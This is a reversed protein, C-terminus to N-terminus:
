MTNTTIPLRVPLIPTSGMRDTLHDMVMPVIIFSSPSPTPSQSPTLFHLCKRLMVEITICFYVYLIPTCGDEANADGYTSHLAQKCTGVGDGDGDLKIITGISVSRRVSLIRTSCLTFKVTIPVPDSNFKFTSPVASVAHSSTRISRIQNYITAYFKIELIEVCCSLLPSCIQSQFTDTSTMLDLM